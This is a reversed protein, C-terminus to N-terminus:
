TQMKVRDHKCFYTGSMPNAGNRELAHEIGPLGRPFDPRGRLCAFAKPGFFFGGVFIVGSFHLKACLRKSCFSVVWLPDLASFIENLVLRERLFTQPNKCFYINSENAAIQCWPSLQPVCAGQVFASQSEQSRGPTIQCTSTPGKWSGALFPLPMHLRRRSPAM